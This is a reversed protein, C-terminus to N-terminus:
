KALKAQQEKFARVAGSEHLHAAHLRLTAMYDMQASCLASDIVARPLWGKLDTDLVWQFLTRDPEASSLSRMTWCNPGNEGRCVFKKKLLVKLPM